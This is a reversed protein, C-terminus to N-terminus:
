EVSEIMTAVVDAYFRSGDRRCYQWESEWAGSERIKPTALESIKDFSHQDPYIIETTRGLVEHAAYGFMVEAGKNWHVIQRTGFQVGLIAQTLGNYLATVFASDLRLPTPSQNYYQPNTPRAPVNPLTAGIERSSVGSRSTSLRDM